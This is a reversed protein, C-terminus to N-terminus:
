AASECDTLNADGTVGIRGPTPKNRSTGSLVWLEGRRGRLSRRRLRPEDGAVEGFRLVSRSSASLPPRLRLRLRLFPVPARRLMENRRSKRRFVCMLKRRFPESLGLRDRFDSFDFRDAVSFDLFDFFDSFRSARIEFDSFISSSRRLEWGVIAFPSRKGIMHPGIIAVLEALFEGSMDGRVGLDGREIGMFCKQPLCAWIRGGSAPLPVPVGVRSCAAEVLSLGVEKFRANRFRM